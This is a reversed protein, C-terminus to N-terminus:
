AHRQEVIETRRLSRVLAAPDEARMLSEGILFGRYGCRSLREIDARSSIGSESVLTADAPALAALEVSIELASEFTRLDRNNVGILKAGSDSARQMEEATHVEMLTDLELEDEALARLSLLHSDTLAAVILLIADADAAAAEYIQYEDIIFDKRLIPLETVSRAQRLDELSGHFFEPETLISVACVGAKEYLAIIESVQADRRIFGLSPSARKFEGIINIGSNQQLARRLRHPSRAERTHEAERQLVRPDCIARDQVVQKRRRALIEELFNGKSM